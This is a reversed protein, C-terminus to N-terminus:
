YAAARPHRHAIQIQLARMGFYRFDALALALPMRKLDIDSIRLVGLCGM